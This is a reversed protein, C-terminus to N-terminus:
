IQLADHLQIGAHYSGGVARSYRVEGFAIMGKLRVKVTTGPELLNPAGVKMGGKSVDLIQIRSRDSSFPSISQLVCLDETSIRPERRRETGGFVAHTRRLEALQNLFKTASALKTACAGCMSLHFELASARGKELRELLYLELDEDRAHM